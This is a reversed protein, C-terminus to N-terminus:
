IFRGFRGVEKGRRLAVEASDILENVTHGHDPYLVFGGSMYSAYKWMLSEQEVSVRIKAGIKLAEEKSTSPLIIVFEDMTRWRALFDSERLQAKFLNLLLRLAEDGAELSIENYILLNEISVLLIAFQGGSKEAKQFTEEIELLAMQMDPLQSNLDIPVSMNAEYLM